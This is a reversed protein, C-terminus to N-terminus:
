EDDNDMRKSLDTILERAHELGRIFGCLKSYESMDTVSGRAMHEMIEKSREDLKSHLYSFVDNTM